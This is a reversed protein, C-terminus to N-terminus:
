GRLRARGPVMCQVEAGSQEDRVILMVDSALWVDPGTWMCGSPVAGNFILVGKRHEGPGVHLFNPLYLPDTTETESNPNSSVRAPPDFNAFTAECRVRLNATRTTSRNAVYFPLRWMMLLEHPPIYSHKPMHFWDADIPELAESWTTSASLIPGIFGALAIMFGVIM